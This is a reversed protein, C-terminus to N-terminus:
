RGEGVRRAACWVVGEQAAWPRAAKDIFVAICREARVAACHANVVPISMFWDPCGVPAAVGLERLNKEFSRGRGLGEEAAAVLESVKRGATDAGLSWFAALLGRTQFDWAGTLREGFLREVAETPSELEVGVVTARRQRGRKMVTDVPGKPSQEIAALSGRGSEGLGLSSRSRGSRPSADDAMAV